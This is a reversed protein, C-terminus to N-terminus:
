AHSKAASTSDLLTYSLISSYLGQMKEVNKRYVEKMPDWAFGREIAADDYKKRINKMKSRDGSAKYEPIIQIEQVGNQGCWIAAAEILANPWNMNSLEDAYGPFGQVQTILIAGGQAKFSLAAIPKKEYTLLITYPSDFWRSMNCLDGHPYQGSGSVSSFGYKLSKFGKKNIIFEDFFGFKLELKMEGFKFESLAEELPKDAHGSIMRADGFPNAHHFHSNFGTEEKATYMKIEDLNNKLLALDYASM